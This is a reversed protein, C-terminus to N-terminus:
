ALRVLSAFGVDAFTRGDEACDVVLPAEDVGVLDDEKKFVRSSEAAYSQDVM